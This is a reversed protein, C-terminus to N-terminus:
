GWGVGGTSNKWAPKVVRIIASRELEFKKSTVRSRSLETFCAIEFSLVLQSPLQIYPLYDWHYSVWGWGEMSHTKERRVPGITLTVRIAKHGARIKGRSGSRIGSEFGSGPWGGRGAGDFASGKFAVM